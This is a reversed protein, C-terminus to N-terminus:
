KGPFPKYNVYTILGRSKDFDWQGVPLLKVFLYELRLIRSILSIRPKFLTEHIM